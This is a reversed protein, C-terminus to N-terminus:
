MARLLAAARPLGCRELGNVVDDVTAPPRHRADAIRQVAGYVVGASLGVQDCVFDDPAKAEIDWPTM